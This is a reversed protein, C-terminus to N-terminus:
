ETILGSLTEKRINGTSEGDALDELAHVFPLYPDGSGFTQLCRGRALALDPRDSALRTMLASALATKGSGAPGAIFVCRGVSRDAALAVERLLVGLETERGVITM